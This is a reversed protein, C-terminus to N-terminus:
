LLHARLTRRSFTREHGLVVEVFTIPAIARSPRRAKHRAIGYLWATPNQASVVQQPAKLADYFTDQLLDEALSRDSVMQVLYKALRRECSVFLREIEDAALQSRPHAGTPLSSAEDATSM